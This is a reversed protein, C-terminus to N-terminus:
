WGQRQDDAYEKRRDFATKVKVSKSFDNIELDMWLPYFIGLFVKSYSQCKHVTQTYDSKHRLVGYIDSERTNGVNKPNERPM